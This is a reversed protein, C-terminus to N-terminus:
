PPGAGEFGDRHLPDLAARLAALADVRGHGFVANPVAGGPFAGCTQASTTPVATARLIAEVRDPDGKLTPDASMMLAVVGAVHPGAMSTGSMTGYGGTRLASRVGVGPASVDPKLRGSGDITVPGRSSFSAIANTSAHAAVSFADAYLAPPDVITACASGSNGASAVVVIGAARVAAVAAALTHWACGESPPCGWSNNIVHPALDPRPNQGALDTPALFFQFCALYTAPAGDGLDMNRCGIWRAEPAVGIENAGDLGVITGMTHTGHNHDDCPAPTSYGCPNANPAGIDAAIADWWHHDHTAAVGDWGRYSARLAPHDWRYGTDQGAVVVGAGRIGLAWVEPARVNAIGWEAAKPAALAPLPEPLPTRSSANAEIRVVDARLALDALAAPQARVAIANAVWFTRYPLGRRELEARLPAQTVTAHRRLREVTAAVRAEFGLSKAPISQLDAPPLLVLADVPEGTPGATVARDLKPPWAPEAAAAGPALLALALAAPAVRRLRVLPRAAMAPM